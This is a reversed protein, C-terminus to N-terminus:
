SNVTNIIVYHIHNMQLIECYSLIRWQYIKREREKQINLGM